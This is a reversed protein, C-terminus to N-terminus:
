ELRSFDGNRSFSFIFPAETKEIRRMMGPLAKIFIEAMELGSLGKRTLVFAKVKAQQFMQLEHPNRRIASDKTLVVWNKNGAEKLWAVDETAQNFVDDHVIVTVGAAKLAEVVFKGGLSRDIFFVPAAPPNKPPM